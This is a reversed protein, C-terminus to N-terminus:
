SSCGIKGQLAGEVGRRHELFRVPGPLTRKWGDSRGAETSGFYRTSIGHTDRAGSHNGHAYILLLVREAEVKKEAALKAGVAARTQPNLAASRLAVESAAAAPLRRHIATTRQIATSNASAVAGASPARERHRGGDLPPPTPPKPPKPPM